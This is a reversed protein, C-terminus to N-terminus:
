IMNKIIDKIENPNKPYCVLYHGEGNYEKWILYIPLKDFYQKGLVAALRLRVNKQPKGKVIKGNNIRQSRKNWIQSNFIVIPIKLMQTIVWQELTSGWRDVYYGEQELQEMDVDGAFNSYYMLYEEWSIDHVLNVANSLPIDGLYSVKLDPNNSIFNLIENQIFRALVEQKGSYNGFDVKVKDINKTKGWNKMSLMTRESTDSTGFYIGNSIARYFCANDNLVDDIEFHSTDITSNNFMTEQLNSQQQEM